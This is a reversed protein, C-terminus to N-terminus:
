SWPVDALFSQPPARTSARRRSATAVPRPESGRGWRSEGLVVTGDASVATGGSEHAACSWLCLGAEHVFGAHSGSHACELAQVPALAGVWLLLSFAVCRGVRRVWRQPRANFSAPYM